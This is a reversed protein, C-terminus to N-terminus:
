FENLFTKIAATRGAIQQMERLNVVRRTSMTGLFERYRELKEQALWLTFQLTNWWLGLSLQLQPCVTSTHPLQPLDNHTQQLLLNKNSQM